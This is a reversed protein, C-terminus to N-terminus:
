MVNDIDGCVGFILVNMPLTLCSVSSTRRCMWEDYKRKKIQNEKFSFFFRETRLINKINRINKRLLLNEFKAMLSDFNETM